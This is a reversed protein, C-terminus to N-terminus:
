LIILCLGGFKLDGGGPLILEDIIPSVIVPLHMKKKLSSKLGIM